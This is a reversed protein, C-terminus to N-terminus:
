AVPPGSQAARELGALWLDHQRLLKPRILRSFFSPLFGRQTEETVVRCEDGSPNVHWRHCGHIGIGRFEWALHRGPVCTAVRSTLPLWFTMWKFTTGVGLEPGTGAVIRVRRANPYYEHWRDPRVLWAWVRDCPADLSSENKVYLAAEAPACGSPWSQM